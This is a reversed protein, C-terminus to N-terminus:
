NFMRVGGSFNYFDGGNGVVGDRRRWEKKIKGSSDTIPCFSSYSIKERKIFFFIKM